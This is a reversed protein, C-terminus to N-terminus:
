WFTNVVVCHLPTQTRSLESSTHCLRSIATVGQVSSQDSPADGMEENQVTVPSKM